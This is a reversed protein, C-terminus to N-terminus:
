AALKAMASQSTLVFSGPAYAEDVLVEATWPIADLADRCKAALDDSGVIVLDVTEGRDRMGVLTARLGARFLRSM